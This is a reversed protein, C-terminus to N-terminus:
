WRVSGSIGDGRTSRETHGHGAFFVVIRDDPGTGDRAFEMYADMINARTADGDLLLLVQNEPFEWKDRLAKAVAEADNVAYGLPSAFTYANIGIVLARSASYHPLFVVRTYNL